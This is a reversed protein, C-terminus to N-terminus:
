DRPKICLGVLMGGVPFLSLGIAGQMPNKLVFVLVVSIASGVVAGIYFYPREPLRKSMERAFLMVGIALFVFFWYILM